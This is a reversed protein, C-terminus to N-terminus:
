GPAMYAPTQVELITSGAWVLWSGSEIMDRFRQLLSKELRRIQFSQLTFENDHQDTVRIIGAHKEKRFGGDHVLRMLEIKSVRIRSLNDKHAASDNIIWLPAFAMTALVFDLSLFQYMFIFTLIYSNIVRIQPQARWFSYLFRNKDFHPHLYVIAAECMVKSAKQNVEQCLQETLPQKELEQM